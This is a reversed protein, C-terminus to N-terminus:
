SAVQRSWSWRGRRAACGKPSCWRMGGPTPAQCGECRGAQDERRARARTVGHLVTTHDRGVLWGIKGLTWGADRLEAMIEHRIEVLRPSRSPSRLDEVTIGHTRCAREVVLRARRDALESLVLERLREVIVRDAEPDDLLGDDVEVAAVVTHTGQGGHPVRITAEAM